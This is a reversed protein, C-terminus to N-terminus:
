DFVLGNHHVVLAEEVLPEEVFPEPEVGFEMIGHESAHKEMLADNEVRLEKIEKERKELETTREELTKKARKWALIYSKMAKGLRVAKNRAWNAELKAVKLEQQTTKLEGKSADHELCVEDLHSTTRYLLEEVQHNHRRGIKPNTIDSLTGQADRKMLLSFRTNYTEEEHIELLRGLTYHLCRAALHEWSRGVFRFEHAEYYPPLVSQRVTCVIEFKREWDSPHPLERGKLEPVPRGVRHCFEAVDLEFHEYPPMTGCQLYHTYVPDM